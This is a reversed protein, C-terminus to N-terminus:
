TMLLASPQAHRPVIVLVDLGAEPQLKALHLIRARHHGKLHNRSTPLKSGSIWGFKLMVRSKALEVGLPM